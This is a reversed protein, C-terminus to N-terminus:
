RLYWSGIKHAHSLVNRVSLLPVLELVVCIREYKKRNLVRVPLAFAGATSRKPTFVRLRVLVVKQVGQFTCCAGGDKGGGWGGEPFFTTFFQECIM